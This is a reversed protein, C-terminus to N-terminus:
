TSRACGFSSRMRRTWDSPNRIMHQYAESRLVDPSELEYVILHQPPSQEPVAVTNGIIQDTARFRRAALFGPVALREPIHEEDYWKLFDPELERRIDSQVVLIAKTGTRNSEM